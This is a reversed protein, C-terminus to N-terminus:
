PFFAIPNSKNFDMDRTWFRLGQSFQFEIENLWDKRIHKTLTWNINDMKIYNFRERSYFDPKGIRTSKYGFMHLFKGLAQLREDNIRFQTLRTTINNFLIDQQPNGGLNTYTDPTNKINNLNRSHTLLSAVASVGFLGASAIRAGPVPAFIMGTALMASNRALNGGAGRWASGSNNSLFQEYADTVLPITNASQNISGHKADYNFDIENDFGVNEDTTLDVMDRNGILSVLKRIFLNQNPLDELGYRFGDSQANGLNYYNFQSTFIKSVQNVKFDDDAIYKPQLNGIPILQRTYDPNLLWDQTGGGTPRVRALLQGPLQNVVILNSEPQFTYDFPAVDSVYIGSTQPDNAREILRLYTHEETAQQGNALNYRINFTQGLLGNSFPAVYVYYPLNMGLRFYRATRDANATQIPDATMLYVWYIRNPNTDITNVVLFDSDYIQYDEAIRHYSPNGYEDWDNVHEREIVAQSISDCIIDFYTQVLDITYNILHLKPNIMSFSEPLLFFLFEKGELVETLSIYDPLEQHDVPLQMQGNVGQFRQPTAFGFKKYCYPELLELLYKPYERLKNELDIRFEKPFRYFKISSTWQQGEVGTSLTLPVDSIYDRM